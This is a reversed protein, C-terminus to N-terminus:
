NIFEKYVLWPCGRKFNKIDMKPHGHSNYVMQTFEIIIKM